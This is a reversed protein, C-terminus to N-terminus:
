NDESKITDNLDKWVMEVHRPWDILTNMGTNQGLRISSVEAEFGIGTKHGHFVLTTTKPLSDELMFPEPKERRVYDNLATLIKLRGFPALSKLEYEQFKETSRANCIFRIETLVSYPILESHDIFRLQLCYYLGYNGWGIGFDTHFNPQEIRGQTDFTVSSIGILTERLGADFDKRFDAYKKEKLLVPIDCDELLLPLVVVRKEELERM